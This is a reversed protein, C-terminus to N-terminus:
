PFNITSSLDARALVFHFVVAIMNLEASQNKFLAELADARLSSIMTFVKRRSCITSSFNQLRRILIEVSTVQCEDHHIYHESDELQKISHRSCFALGQGLSNGRQPFACCLCYCSTVALSVLQVHKVRAKNFNIQLLSPKQFPIQLLPSLPPFPVM